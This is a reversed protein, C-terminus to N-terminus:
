AAAAATYALNALHRRWKRQWGFMIENELLGGGGPWGGALGGNIGYKSM